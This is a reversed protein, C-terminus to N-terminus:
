HCDNRPEEWNQLEDSMAAARDRYRDMVKNYVRLAKRFHESNYYGYMQLVRMGTRQEVAEALQRAERVLEWWEKEEPKRRM